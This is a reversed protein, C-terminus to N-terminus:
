RIPYYLGTKWTTSDKDQELGKWFVEFPVNFVKKNEILLKEDLISWAKDRDFLYGEHIVTLVDQKPFYNCVHKLPLNIEICDEIPIAIIYQVLEELRSTYIIFPFGNISMKNNEILQILKKFEIKQIKDFNKKPTSLIKGFYYGGEHIQKGRYDNTSKYEFPNLSIILIFFIIAIVIVFEKLSFNANNILKKIM